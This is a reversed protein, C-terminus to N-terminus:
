SLEVQEPDPQCWRAHDSRCVICKGWDVPNAFYVEPADVNITGSPLPMIDEVVGVVKVIDADDVGM